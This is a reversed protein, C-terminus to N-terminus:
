PQRGLSRLAARLPAWQELSLDAELVDTPIGACANVAALVRRRSDGRWEVWYDDAILVENGDADLIAGNDDEEPAKWPEPLHKPTDTM